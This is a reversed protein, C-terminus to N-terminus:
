FLYNIGLSVIGGDSSLFDFRRNFQAANAIDSNKATIHNTYGIRFVDFFLDASLHDNFSYNVGPTIGLSLIVHDLNNEEVDTGSQEKYTKSFQTLGASASIAGSCFVTFRNISYVSYRCYIGAGYLNVYNDDAYAVKEPDSKMQVKDIYDTRQWSLLIGAEIRDNFVYGLSPSFMVDSFVTSGANNIGNSRSSNSEWNLKVQGGVVFQANAACVFLVSVILVFVKKM